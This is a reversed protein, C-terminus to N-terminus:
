SPTRQSLRSTKSATPMTPSAYFEWAPLEGFSLKYFRDFRHLLFRKM